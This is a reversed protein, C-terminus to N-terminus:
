RVDRLGELDMRFEDVRHAANHLDCLPDGTDIDGAKAFLEALHNAIVNMDNAMQVAESRSMIIVVERTKVEM